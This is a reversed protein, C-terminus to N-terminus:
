RMLFNGQPDISYIHGQELNKDAIYASIAKEIM